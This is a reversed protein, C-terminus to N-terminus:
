PEPGTEHQFGLAKLLLGRMERIDDCASKLAAETDPTLDLSGSNAARALQNLNNAIRSQGLAGLLQALAKTDVSPSRYKRRPTRVDDDFLRSRIYAGLPMDGADKELQAREEFTLRLSFPKPKSTPFSHRLRGNM